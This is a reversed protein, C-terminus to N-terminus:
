DMKQAFEELQNSPFQTVRKTSKKTNMSSVSNQSTRDSADVSTGADGAVVLAAALSLILVTKKM